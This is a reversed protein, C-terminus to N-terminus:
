PTVERSDKMYGEGQIRLWTGDKRTRGSVTLAADVEQSVLRAPQVAMRTKGKFEWDTVMGNDEKTQMSATWRLEALRGAGAGEVKAIRFTGKQFEGVTTGVLARFVPQKMPMEDGVRLARAGLEQVLADDKGLDAHHTWLSQAEEETASKGETDTASPTEQMADLLFARGELVADERKGRDPHDEKVRHVAYAARVKGPRGGIREIVENTWEAREERRSETAAWRQHEAWFEVSVVLRSQRETKWKQGIAVPHAVFRIVESRAPPAPALAPRSADPPEADRQCAAALSCLVTLM